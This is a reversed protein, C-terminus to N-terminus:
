PPEGVNCYFVGTYCFAIDVCDGHRIRRAKDARQKDAYIECLAKGHRKVDRQYRYVM